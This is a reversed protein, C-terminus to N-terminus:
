NAVKVMAYRLVRDGIRYGPQLVEVIENEGYAEDEIHLVANHSDPSFTEGPAGFEEVGFQALTDLFSKYIMEVGKRFEADTSECALARKFNDLIPLFKAIAAATAEPYINEKERQSRKRYNEYEAAIRLMQDKVSDLEQQLKAAADEKAEGPSEPAQGAAEKEPQAEPAPTAEEPAAKAEEPKEPTKKEKAVTTM